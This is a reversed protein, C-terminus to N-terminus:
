VEMEKLMNSLSELKKLAGELILPDIQDVDGLMKSHNDKLKLAFTEVQILSSIIDDLKERPAKAFIQLLRMNDKSKFNDKLLRYLGIAGKAQEKPTLREFREKLASAYVEHAMNCTTYFENIAEVVDIYDEESPDTGLLEEFRRITEKVLKKESTVAVGVKVYLGQLYSRINEYTKSNYDSLEGSIDWGKAELHRLSNFLEYTRYFQVKGSVTDGVIGM